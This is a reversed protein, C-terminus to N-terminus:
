ANKQRKQKSIEIAALQKLAQKKTAHTGLRKGGKDPYVVYQSDVKKIKENMNRLIKVKITRKEQEFVNKLGQRKSREVHGKHEEEGSVMPRGVMGWNVASPQSIEKLQSKDKNKTVRIKM